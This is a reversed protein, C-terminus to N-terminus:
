WPQYEEGTLTVSMAWLQRALDHDAAWERVGSRRDDDFSRLPAINCDECYVGGEEALLSSTACWLATAAGQEITKLDNLPDVRIGGSEDYAGFAQIQAPTLNRALDTLISGPHVSFARIGSSQARRDLEVAFLANATKSQGYAVWPDYSRRVFNADSFDVGAIRHARSSMSIVRASDASTLAPALRNTLIFPALHNIALQSENGVPDRALPPAMIGASHILIDLSRGTALFGDAFRHISEREALEVYAIEVNSLAALAIGAKAPSRAPVIVHAGAKALSRTMELGLGSYGGTVIATRGALDIGSLVSGSTAFADFPSSIPRQYTM